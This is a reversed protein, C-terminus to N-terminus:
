PSTIVSNWHTSKLGFGLLRFSSTVAVVQYVVAFGVNSAKKGEGCVSLIKRATPSKSARKACIPRQKEQHLLTREASLQLLCKFSRKQRIAQIYVGSQLRSAESRRSEGKPPRKM